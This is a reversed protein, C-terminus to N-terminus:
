IYIDPVFEGKYLTYKGKRIALGNYALSIVKRHVINYDKCYLYRGGLETKGVFLEYKEIKDLKLM